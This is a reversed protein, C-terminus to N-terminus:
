GRSRDPPGVASRRTAQRAAQKNLVHRAIELRYVIDQMCQPRRSPKTRVCEMVLASLPPPVTRNLEHPAPIVQDLLFSNEGRQLTYLTPLNRDCLAWYLTAGFNYVDTAATVPECRVQEPAIYDPTGQIRPKRTGIPCAQGFDIVTVDADVSNATAGVLINNPKLDCHVFGATHLSALAEAVRIFVDVLGTVCATHPPRDQVPRGHVLELVLSAETVRRRLLTREVRLEVSRRLGPHRVRSAVEHEAILQEVFRQERDTQPRVHKLAYARRTQPHTVAYLVSGAGRGLETTVRYGAIERPVDAVRGAAGSSTRGEGDWESVAVDRGSQSFSVM